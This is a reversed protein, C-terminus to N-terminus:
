PHFNFVLSIYAIGGIQPSGFAQSVRNNLLNNVGLKSLANIKKLEKSFQIDLLSYAPITGPRNGNFTGYWDFSSQWHLQSYFGFGKGLDSNGFGLNGSFKPTNFPAINNPDSSGLNIESYTLNALMSFNKGLIAQVGGSVGVVRVEDKSNTYLQFRQIRGSLIDEAAGLNIEGNNSIPSDPRVILTNVQFNRYSGLYSSIDFFIKKSITARYGLEWTNNKEPQIYDVDSTVLISKTSLLAQQPNQGNQIAMNYAQSFATVSNSTFSNEYANLGVSNSPAGGLIIIPGVNLKIFQDVPTPNRFGSQFSFRLNQNEKIEYNAGFRPTIQGKFNFNRDYRISSTLNLKEELFKKNAQVFLGVEQVRVKKNLDDFLSGKTFMDYM